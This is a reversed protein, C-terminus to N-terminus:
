DLEDIIKKLEKKEEKTLKQISFLASAYNLISGEFWFNKNKILQGNRFEKEDRIASFYTLGKRYSSVFGKDKLNKLFTYVTTDKYELGYDNKLKEMIQQCTAPEKLDWVCKMTILECESIESRRM